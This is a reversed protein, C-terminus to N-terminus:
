RCHGSIKLYAFRCTCVAYLIVPAVSLRQGRRLLSARQTAKQLILVLHLCLTFTKRVRM